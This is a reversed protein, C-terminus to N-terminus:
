PTTSTVPVDDCMVELNFTMREGKKAGVMFPIAPVRGTFTASPNGDGITGDSPSVIFTQTTDRMGDLTTWSEGPGYTLEIAVTLKWEDDCYNREGDPELSAESSMCKFETGGISLSPKIIRM